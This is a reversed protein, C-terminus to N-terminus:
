TQPCFAIWEIGSSIGTQVLGAMEAAAVYQQFGGSYGADQYLTPRRALIASAVTSCMHYVTGCKGMHHLVEILTQFPALACLSIWADGMQGGLTVINAEVALAAYEKFKTVGARIYVQSDQNVLDVAIKTRLPHMSGSVCHRLLVSCLSSFREASPITDTHQEVSNFTNATMPGTAAEAPVKNSSLASGTSSPPTSPQYYIWERGNEGGGYTIGIDATMARAMYEEFTEVDRIDSALIHRNYCEAVSAWSPFRLGRNRHDILLDLLFEFGVNPSAVCLSSTSEAESSRNGARQSREVAPSTGFAASEDSLSDDSTSLLVEVLEKIRPKSENDNPASPLVDLGTSTTRAHSSRNAPSTTAPWYDEAAEVQDLIDHNWDIFVSAQARLSIHLNAPAIIVVAFEGGCAGWLGLMMKDAVDKRGNHPCDTLSVGSSQLESRLALMRASPTPPAEYYAKFLTVDGYQLAVRRINDVLSYGSYSAAPQCNEAIWKM